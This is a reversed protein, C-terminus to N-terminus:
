AMKMDSWKKQIETHGVASVANVAHLKGNREKLPDKLEVTSAAESLVM